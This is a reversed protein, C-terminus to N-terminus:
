HIEQMANEQKWVRYADIAGYLQKIVYGLVVADDLFGLGLIFDPILDVPTVMYLLGAVIMVISGKGIRRYRGSRYDKVLASLDAIDDRISKLGFRRSTRDSENLLDNVKERNELIKRARPQYGRLLDSIKAM